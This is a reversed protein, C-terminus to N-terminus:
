EAVARFDGEVVNGDTDGRLQQGVPARLDRGDEGVPPAHGEDLGNAQRVLEVASLARQQRGDPVTRGSAWETRLKEADALLQAVAHGKEVYWRAKHGVYFAAVAPAEDAGVRKVFQLMQANVTANRVPPTRYLKQFAQTYAEWTPATDPGAPPPKARGKAPTAKVQPPPTEVGAPLSSTSTTTTTSTTTSSNSPAEFHSRLGKWAGECGEILAENKENGYTHNEDFSGLLEALYSFERPVTELVKLAGKVRNVGLVPFKELHKPIYVWRTRQCYRAFGHASLELLGKSAGEFPINLDDAIQSLPYYFAGIANGRECVRLFLCILKATESLDRFHHHTVMASDITGYAQAM